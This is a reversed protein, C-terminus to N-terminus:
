EVGDAKLENILETKLHNVQARLIVTPNELIAEILSIVNLAYEPAETDLEPITEILYLGLAQNMTFDDQLDVHLKVKPANEGSEREEPPTITLVEGRVLAIFM